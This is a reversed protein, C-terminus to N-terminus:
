ISQQQKAHHLCFTNGTLGLQQKTAVAVSRAEHLQLVAPKSDVVEPQEVKQRKAQHAAAHGHKSSGVTVATLSTLLPLQTQNECSPKSTAPLTRQLAFDFKWGAEQQLITVLAILKIDVDDATSCAAIHRVSM